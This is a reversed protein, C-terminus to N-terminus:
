RPTREPWEAGADIWAKLLLVQGEPLRHQEPFAIDTRSGSVLAILPSEAARGPLVLPERGGGGVLDQKRDVRVGGRQRTPGHCRLCSRELVPYVEDWFRVKAGASTATGDAGPSDDSCPAEGGDRSPPPCVDPRMQTIPKLSQQAAWAFLIGAGALALISLGGSVLSHGEVRARGLLRRGVVSVVWQWHLALHVALVSVLALSVWFHVGGWGHRTLGWLLLDKNTGPPLPFRLLYGTAMMTLFLVAVTTDILLNLSTRNM